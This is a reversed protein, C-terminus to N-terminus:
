SRSSSRRLWDPAPALAVEDPGRLWRYRGETLSPCVVILGGTSKLEGVHVGDLRLDRGGGIGTPAVVIHIGGRGTRALPTRPLRHGAHEMWARLAGLHASEIDFVDFAEGCVLGINPGPESRWYRKIQAPDITADRQWGRYMPRKDGPAVPFVRWGLSAYLRGWERTTIPREIV